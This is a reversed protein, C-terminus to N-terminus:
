QRRKIINLLPILNKYEKGLNKIEREIEKERKLEEKEELILKKGKISLNYLNSKLKEKQSATVKINIQEFDCKIEKDSYSAVKGNKYQFIM